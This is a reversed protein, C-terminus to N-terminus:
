LMVNAPDRDFFISKSSTALPIGYCVRVDPPFLDMRLAAQGASFLIRNDIRNDAAVSAASGAAIGLDTVNFACNAGAKVMKGCNEFGCMGCHDLGFPASIAGLLLVCHSNDVNSADRNFFEAGTESAIDRMHASLADKEEGDLILAIVTDRGSGKPATKAAAAMKDAVALAARKEADEGKYVM